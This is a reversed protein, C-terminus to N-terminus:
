WQFSKRQKLRQRLSPLLGKKKSKKEKKILTTKGNQGFVKVKPSHAITRSQITTGYTSAALKLAKGADLIGAGSRVKGILSPVEKSSKIILKKIQAPTMEPYQSKILAAVGTVFATAQSTGTMEGARGNPIASRIMYGPASVDVSRPGYNASHVKQLSSNHATVTIINSLGYSAPYYANQANDILSQENGAAAVILIGKKEAKKLIALEEASAEPGGGSYNIIDVNRRVARKLAKITSYLNKEGSAKPNYYKLPLLKVDPFVSKIIGAIHTGHGHTDYPSNSESDGSFDAGFNRANTEGEGASFNARLYEHNFDAGTDVVAVKVKKKRKFHKWAEVLNISSIKNRPDVGWNNYRPNISSASYTLQLQKQTKSLTKKVELGHAFPTILSSILLATTLPALIRMLIRGVSFLLKL